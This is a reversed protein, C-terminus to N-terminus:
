QRSSIGIPPKFAVRHCLRKILLMLAARRGITIQVTIHRDRMLLSVCLRCCIAVTVPTDAGYANVFETVTQINLNLRREDLSTFKDFMYGNRGYVVGNNEIKGLASECISKLTIWGDRGIFQDNMFTEYKQTYKDATRVALLSSVTLKPKQALKRNEMVSDERPPTLLSAIALAYLFVAFLILLPYKKLFQM